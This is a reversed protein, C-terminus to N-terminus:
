ESTSYFHSHGTRPRSPFPSFPCIEATYVQLCLSLDCCLRPTLPFFLTALHLVITPCMKNSPIQFLLYYLCLCPILYRYALSHLSLHAPTLCIESCGMERQCGEAWRGPGDMKSSLLARIQMGFISKSVCGGLQQSLNNVIISLVWFCPCCEMQFIADGM